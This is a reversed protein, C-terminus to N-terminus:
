GCIVCIQASSFYSNDADIQTMQPNIVEEVSLRGDEVSGYSDNAVKVFYGL